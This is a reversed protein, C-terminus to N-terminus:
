EELPVIIRATCRLPGGPAAFGAKFQFCAVMRNGGATRTLITGRLIKVSPSGSPENAGTVALPATTPDSSAILTDGYVVFAQIARLKAEPDFDTWEIKRVQWVKAPNAAKFKLYEAVQAQGKEALALAAEVGRRRVEEEREAAKRRAGSVGGVLLAVVGAVILAIIVGAILMGAPSGRASTKRANGEDMSM